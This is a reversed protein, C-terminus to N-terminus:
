FKQFILIKSLKQSTLRIKQMHDGNEYPEWKWKADQPANFAEGVGQERRSLIYLEEFKPNIFTKQM